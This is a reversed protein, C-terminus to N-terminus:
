VHKSHFARIFTLLVFWQLSTEPVQSLKVLVQHHLGLYVIRTGKSVMPRTEDFGVSQLM